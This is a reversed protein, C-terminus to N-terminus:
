CFSQALHWVLTVGSHRLPGLPCLSKHLLQPSLHALSTLKECGVVVDGFSILISVTHKILIASNRWTCGRLMRYVRGACGVLSRLVGSGRTMRSDHLCFRRTLCLRRQGRDGRRPEIGLFRRLSHSGRVRVAMRGIHLACRTHRVLNVFTYFRISESSQSAEENM